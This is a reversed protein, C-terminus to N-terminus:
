AFPASGRQAGASRLCEPATHAGHLGAPTGVDGSRHRAEAAARQQLHVLQCVLRDEPELQEVEDEAKVRAEAEAHQAGREGEGQRAGATQRWVSLQRAAACFRGLAHVPHLARRSESAAPQDTPPAALPMAEAQLIATAATNRGAHAHRRWHSASDAASSHHYQM